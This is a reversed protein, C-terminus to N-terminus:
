VPGTANTELVRKRRENIDGVIFLTLGLPILLVGWRVFYTKITEVGRGTFRALGSQQARAASDEGVLTPPLIARIAPMSTVDVLRQPDPYPIEIRPKNELMQRDNTALFARLNETEARGAKAFTPVSYTSASPRSIAASRPVILLLWLAVAALGRRHKLWSNALRAPPLRPERREGAYCDSLCRFLATGGNWDRPWIRNGGDAAAGLRRASTDALAPRRAAAKAPDRSPEGRCGAHQHPHRLTAQLVFPVPGPTAPWSAVQVAARMFDGISHAKLPAMGPIIPIDHLMAAATLALLALGGIERPGRRPGAAFQALGIAVAASMSLAGGATCFYSIGLLLFGTWWRTNLAPAAVIALLGSLSTLLLFYWQSNFGELSNEWGFPLAFM